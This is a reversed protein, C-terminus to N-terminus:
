GHTGGPPLAAAEGHEDAPHDAAPHTDHGHGHGADKPQTIDDFHAFPRTVAVWAGVGFILLALGGLFLVGILGTDATEGQTVGIGLAVMMLTIGIGGAMAMGFSLPNDTKTTKINM